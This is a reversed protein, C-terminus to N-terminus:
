VHQSSCQALLDDLVKQLSDREDGIARVLNSIHPIAALLGVSPNLGSSVEKWESAPEKRGVSPGLSPM